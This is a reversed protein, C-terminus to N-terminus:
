NNVYLNVFVVFRALIIAHGLYGGGYFGSDAGYRNMWQFALHPEIEFSYDPHNGPQRVVSQAHAESCVGLLLLGSAAIGVFFKQSSM